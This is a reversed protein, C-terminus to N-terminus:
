GPAGAGPPLVANDRLGAPAVSKLNILIGISHPRNREGAHHEM